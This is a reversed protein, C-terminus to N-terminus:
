GSKEQLKYKKELEELKPVVNNDIVHLLVNISNCITKYKEKNQSSTEKDSFLMMKVLNFHLDIFEYTLKKLENKIELVSGYIYAPNDYTLAVSDGGIKKAAIMTKDFNDIKNIVEVSSQMSGFNKCIKEAEKKIFDMDGYLYLVTLKDAGTDVQREGQYGELNIYLRKLRSKVSNALKYIGNEGTQKKIATTITEVSKDKSENPPLSQYSYRIFMLSNRIEMTKARMTRVENLYTDLRNKERENAANNVASRLTIEFDYLKQIFDENTKIIDSSAVNIGISKTDGESGGM